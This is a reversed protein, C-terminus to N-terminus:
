ELAHAARPGDLHIHPDDGRRVFVKLLGNGGPREAFVQVVPEAHDRQVQGGQALAPSVEIQQQRGERFAQAAHMGAFRGDVRRFRHFAEATVRPGAIHAFQAIERLAHHDEKPALSDEGHIERRFHGRLALRLRRRVRM